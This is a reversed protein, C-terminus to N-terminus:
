VSRITICLDNFEPARKIWWENDLQKLKKFAEKPEMKVMIYLIVTESGDEPDKHFDLILDESPFYQRIKEYAETLVFKLLRKNKRLYRIIEPNTVTYKEILKMTDPSLLMVKFSKTAERIPKTINWKPPGLYQKVIRDVSIM